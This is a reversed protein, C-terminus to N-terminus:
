RGSDRLPGIVRRRHTPGIGLAALAEATTLGARELMGLRLSQPPLDALALDVLEQDIHRRGTSPMCPGVLRTLHPRVAERDHKCFTRWRVHKAPADWELSRESQCGPVPCDSRWQGNAERHSNLKELAKCWCFGACDEATPEGRGCAV